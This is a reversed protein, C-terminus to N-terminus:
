AVSIIYKKKTIYGKDLTSKDLQKRSKTKIKLFMQHSAEKHYIRVIFEVKAVFCVSINVTYSFVTFTYSGHIRPSLLYTTHATKSMRDSVVALLGTYCLSM